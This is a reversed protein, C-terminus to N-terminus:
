DSPTIQVKLAEHFIDEKSKFFYLFFMLLTSVGSVQICMSLM